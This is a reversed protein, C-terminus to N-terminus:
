NDPTLTRRSSRQLAPGAAKETKPSSPSEKEQSISAAASRSLAPQPADGSSSPSLVERHEIPSPTVERHIAPQNAQILTSTQGHLGGVMALSLGMGVVSLRERVQLALWLRFFYM